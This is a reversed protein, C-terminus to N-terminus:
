KESTKKAIDSWLDVGDDFESTGQGDEVAVGVAAEDSGSGPVPEIANDPLFNVVLDEKNTLLVDAGSAIGEIQATVVMTFPLEPLSDRNFSLWSMVAPPVVLTEVFYRPGADGAFTDPLSSENEEPGGQEEDEGESETEGPGIVGSLPLSTDPPQLSAGAIAYSFYIRKVRIFQGSLNNQLGVFATLAGGHSESASEQSITDSLPASLGVLGEPIEGSRDGAEQFYGLFTFAVGQDNNASGCAVLSALSAVAVIAVAVGLFRKMSRGGPLSMVLKDKVM